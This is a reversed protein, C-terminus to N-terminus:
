ARRKLSAISTVSGSEWNFGRVMQDADSLAHRERNAQGARIPVVRL